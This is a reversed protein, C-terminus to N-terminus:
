WLFIIARDTLVESTLREDAPPSVMLTREGLRRIVVAIAPKIRGSDPDLCYRGLAPHRNFVAALCEAVSPQATFIFPEAIQGGAFDTLRGVYKVEVNTM